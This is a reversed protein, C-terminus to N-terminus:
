YLSVVMARDASVCIRMRTSMDHKPQTEFGELPRVLYTAFQRYQCGGAVSPNSDVDDGDSVLIGDWSRLPGLFKVLDKASGTARPDMLAIAADPGHLLWVGLFDTAASKCEMVSKSASTASGLQYTSASRTMSSTSLSGVVSLVILGLFAVGIWGLCGIGKRLVVGCRPCSSAQSSISNGCEKCTTLAM